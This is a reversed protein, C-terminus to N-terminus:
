SRPQLAAVAGQRAGELVFQGWFEPDTKFWAHCGFPLQRNLKEFAWRPAYEVAFSLAEEPSPIAFREIWHRAELSWWTDENHGYQAAFEKATRRIGAALMAARGLTAARRLAPRYDAHPGKKALQWASLSARKSQLTELATAVKRLSLGGNGVGCLGGEPDHSYNPFWPAGVYDWGADCWEQLRDAFVLCDTQYILIYTYDQFRRYFDASLLLDSYGQISRFCHAPFHEYRTPESLPRDREPSIVIWDYRGLFASRHALSVQEQPPLPWRYIPTVVAVQKMSIGARGSSPM